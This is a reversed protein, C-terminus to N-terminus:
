EGSNLRCRRHGSREDRIRDKEEILVLEWVESSFKFAPQIDIHVSDALQITRTTYNGVRGRGRAGRGRGGRGRGRGDYGREYHCHDGDQNRDYYSDMENIRRTRRTSGVQPSLKLDVGNRFITLAQDYIITVRDRTLKLNISTKIKKM